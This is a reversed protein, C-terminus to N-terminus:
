LTFGLVTTRCCLKCCCHLFSLETAWDSFYRVFTQSPFNLIKKNYNGLLLHIFNYVFASFLLSCCLPTTREKQHKTSRVDKYLRTFLVLKTCMYEYIYKNSKEVHKPCSHAWKRSYLFRYSCGRACTMSYSCCGEQL